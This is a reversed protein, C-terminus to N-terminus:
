SFAAAFRRANSRYAFNYVFRQRGARIHSFCRAAGFGRQSRYSTRRGEAHTDRERPKRSLDTAGDSRSLAPADRRMGRSQDSLLKVYLTRRKLVSRIRRQNGHPFITLRQNDFM